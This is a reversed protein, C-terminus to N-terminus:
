LQIPSPVLIKFDSFMVNIKETKQLTGIIYFLIDFNSLHLDCFKNM